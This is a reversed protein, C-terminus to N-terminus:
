TAVGGHLRADEDPRTAPAAPEAIARPMRTPVVLVDSRSAALVQQTIGGLFYDAFLGRQRKGIVVLDAAIARQRMVVCAAARGFGVHASAGQGPDGAAAIAARLGARAREVATGAPRAAEGGADQPLEKRAGVAHFVEMAPDRSFHGAAAIVGAADRGLDVSVLVRAYRGPLAADALSAGRPPAAPRKVVLAPIRILRVLRELPAGSVRERLSNGPRSALVVLNAERAARTAEKLLDGQAVEVEAAVGLREHLVACLQELSARAIGADRTDRVAHLVHLSAGCERALLAARWIANRAAPTRDAVALIRRPPLHPPAETHM